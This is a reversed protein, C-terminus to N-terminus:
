LASLSSARRKRPRGAPYLNVRKEHRRKALRAKLRSFGGRKVRLPEAGYLRQTRWAAM